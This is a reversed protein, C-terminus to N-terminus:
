SIGTPGRLRLCDRCIHTETQNVTHVWNVPAVQGALTRPISLASKLWESRRNLLRRYPRSNRLPLGMQNYRSVPRDAPIKKVRTRGTAQCAPRWPGIHGKGLAAGLPTAPKASKLAVTVPHAKSNPGRSQHRSHILEKVNNISPLSACAAPSQPEPPKASEPATGNPRFSRQSHKKLAM